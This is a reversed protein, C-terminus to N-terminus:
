MRRLFRSGFLLVGMPLSKEVIRTAIGTTAQGSSIRVMLQAPGRCASSYALPTRVAPALVPVLLAIPAVTMWWIGDGSEYEM